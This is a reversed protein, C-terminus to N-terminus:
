ENNNGMNEQVLQVSTQPAKLVRGLEQVTTQLIHNVDTSGVIKATIENIIQEHEARRATQEILRLNELTLGVRDVVATVLSVDDESLGRLAEGGFGFAGIVEGRVRIPIALNIEDSGEDETIVSGMQIAHQMPEPTSGGRPEIRDGGLQYSLPADKRSLRFDQWADATMQRELYQIRQMAEELQIYLKANEWAIALDDAIIQFVAVDEEDFANPAVSQVDLAGVVRDGIRMPLAMESRTDPLLENRRHVNSTDTDLAIVPESQATVQGIVSQSGVPLAHQRALLERGVSGTSAALKANRGDDDVLFVQAHYFDFRRRILEVVENMLDRPRQQKVIARGIEATISLDRTREGVRQELGTVLGNLEEGLSNLSAALQGFEDHSSTTARAQFDGEVLHGATSLLDDVTRRAYRIFLVALLLGIFLVLASWILIGIRAGALIREVVRVAEEAQGQAITNMRGVSNRSDNLLRAYGARSQELEDFLEKVTDAQQRYTELAAPIEDVQQAAPISGQYIQLYADAAEHFAMLDQFDGRTNLSRELSRLLIMQGILDTNGQQLTLAELQDGQVGFIATAGTEPAALNQAEKYILTFSDQLIAIYLGLDKREAEIGAVSARASLDESLQSVRDSNELVSDALAAHDAAIQPVDRVFGPQSIADAMRSELGEMTEVALRMDQTLERMEVATSVTQQLQSRIAGVVVFAALTILGIVVMLGAFIARVKGSISLNSWTLRDIFRQVSV